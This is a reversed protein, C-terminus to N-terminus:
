AGGIKRKAEKEALQKQKREYAVYDPDNSLAAMDEQAAMNNVKRPAVPLSQAYMQRVVNRSGIDMLEQVIVMQGSGADLASIFLENNLKHKEKWKPLPMKNEELLAVMLADSYGEFIPKKIGAVEVEKKKIAEIIEVQSVPIEEIKNAPINDVSKLPECIGVISGEVISGEDNISVGTVLAEINREVREVKGSGDCTWCDKILGGM